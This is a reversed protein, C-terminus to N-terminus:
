KGVKESLKTFEARPNSIAVPCEGKEDYACYEDSLDIDEFKVGNISEAQWKGSFHFELPEFGRCDFVMAPTFSGSQSAEDTLPRGQGTIMALTGSRGCFKCKQVLHAVGRGTPLPVTESLSVCTEKETVEGCGCRLKFMYTFNADDFGGHPQLNTLNELEASIRLQFQVM